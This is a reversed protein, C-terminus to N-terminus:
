TKKPPLDFRMGLLELQEPAPESPAGTLLEQGSSTKPFAIVDRINDHGSLLMVVRDVGFAFGGHPPVGYRFAELMHGFRDHAEAASIGLQEFVRTQLDPQHIRISGSGLEVGNLVIDYARARATEPSLDDTVPMTFPHHVSVWKQEDDSWEFMPFETIWLFNWRGEPILGLRSAMLRRLGDLAVNARTERDAVLLVLDGEAAGTGKAIAEVEDKSLHQIVPSKPEPGAFAIWVLGAAGRSKAETVLADLDKRSWSAAGPAAFGKVVGGNAVADAFARFRSSAFQKTLDALELGYRTDPKDSGYRRMAEEYSLRPWPTALEEGRIDAWLRAFMSEMVGQVDHETPFSMEMDLQTFEWHRDARLDEDRFCRVLQYYRDVGAVMLLQKFQQPSQPLAYVRGKQLRSPVLFDRAGEPTSRTLMPTEVDVFGMDDFAGRISSMVRHRLQAVRTMEPRRLDLYRYKLRLAEDVDVRDEIPFPPTESESLVEIGRAAVEVEGTALAGNVTGEPRVRVEGSVRVVFESRLGSADRYADASDESHAVVQVLGERDRLDFFVVGGHDRTRAVWGALVV